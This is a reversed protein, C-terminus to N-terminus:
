LSAVGLARPQGHPAPRRPEAVLPGDGAWGRVKREGRQAMTRNAGGTGLTMPPPVWKNSAEVMVFPEVRWSRLSDGCALSYVRWRYYAHEPSRVDYLFNFEPNSVEQEM